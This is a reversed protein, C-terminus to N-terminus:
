VGPCSGVVTVPETGVAEPQGVVRLRDVAAAVEPDRVLELADVVARWEGLRGLALVAGRARGRNARLARRPPVREHFAKIALSHRCWGPCPERVGRGQEGSGQQAPLLHVTLHSAQECRQDFSM